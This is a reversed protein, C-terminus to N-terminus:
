PPPTVFGHDPDVAPVYGYKKSKYYLLKGAKPFKDNLYKMFDYRKDGILIVQKPGKDSGTSQYTIICNTAFKKMFQRIIRQENDRSKEIFGRIVTLKKNGTRNELSVEVVNKPLKQKLEQRKRREAESTDEENEQKDEYDDRNASKRKRSARSPTKTPKIRYETTLLYQLDNDIDSMSENLEPKYNQNENLKDLMNQIDSMQQKAIKIQKQSDPMYKVIKTAKKEDNETSKSEPQSQTEYNEDWLHQIKKAIKPDRVINIQTLMIKHLISPFHSLGFRNSRKNGRQLYSTSQEEDMRSM